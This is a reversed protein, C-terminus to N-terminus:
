KAGHKKLLDVMQQSDYGRVTMLATRGDEDKANVDAGKEILLKAVDLSNTGAAWILATLGNKDKANVDAGKSILLKAVNLSNTCAAWILATLGDKNKANVDAGKSILLKAAEMSNTVVACILPSIESTWYSIINKKRFIKKTMDFTSADTAEQNPNMGAKLFLKVAIIDNNLVSKFFSAESYSIGLKVLEKRAAEPSNGCGSMFITTVCLLGLYGVSSLISKKKM